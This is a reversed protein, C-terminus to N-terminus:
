YCFWMKWDDSIKGIMFLRTFIIELAVLCGVEKVLVISHINNAVIAKKIALKNIFNKITKKYVCFSQYKMM